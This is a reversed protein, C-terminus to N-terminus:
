GSCSVVSGDSTASRYAADVVRHALLAEDVTPWGSPRGAALDELFAKAQIVLGAAAVRWTEPVEDLGLREMFAPVPTERVEVGASSEIHVPGTEGEMWLVADECFVEVRRHATRNEVRHWVSLLAASHGGPFAMRVMAMDEIGPWGAFATTHASVSEPAGLMWVLVDVDHISHEILTGGGALAADSRWTSGYTGDIPFRQDDRFFAGMPRGHRGSAVEQALAAYAPAHRLILGVQHPVPRLADALALCEPLSPAMPKEVFVPLGAAAAAQAVPLHGATWTCIWVIDSAAVLSDIDPALAVGTEASFRTAADLDLDYALTVVADTLGAVQLAHLAWWHHGGMLGTGVLGIRRM